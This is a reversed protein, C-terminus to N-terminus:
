KAEEQGFWKKALKAMAQHLGFGAALSVINAPAGAGAVPFQHAIWGGILAASFAACPFMLFARVRGVEKPVTLGLIAGFLGWVINPWPVGMAELFKGVAAIIAVGGVAQTGVTLVSTPEAM